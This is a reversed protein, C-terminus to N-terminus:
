GRRPPQVCARYFQIKDDYNFFNATPINLGNLRSFATRDAFLREIPEWFFCFPKCSIGICGALHRGYTM